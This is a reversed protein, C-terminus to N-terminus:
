CADFTDFCESYQLQVSDPLLLFCFSLEKIAFVSFKCFMVFVCMYYKFIILQLMNYVDTAIANSYLVLLNQAVNFACAVLFM